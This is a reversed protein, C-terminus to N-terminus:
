SAGPQDSVAALSAELQADPAAAGLDHGAAIADRIAAVLAGLKFRFADLGLGPFRSSLRAWVLANVLEFTPVDPHQRSFWKEMEEAGIQSELLALEQNDWDNVDFLEVVDLDVEVTQDDVTVTLRM